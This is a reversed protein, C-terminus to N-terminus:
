WRCGYWVAADEEPTTVDADEDIWWDERYWPCIMGESDNSKLGEREGLGM